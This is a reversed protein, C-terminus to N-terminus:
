MWVAWSAWERPPTTCLGCHTHITEHSEWTAVHPVTLTSIWMLMKSSWMPRLLYLPSCSVRAHGCPGCSTYVNAHFRSSWVPQLTYIPLSCVGTIVVQAANHTAIYWVMANLYGMHDLGNPGSEHSYPWMPWLLYPYNLSVRLHGCSGCHTNINVHAYQIHGCPGCCTHCRFAMDYRQMRVAWITSGMNGVRTPTHGCLGCAIPISIIVRSEYPWMPYHPHQYILM